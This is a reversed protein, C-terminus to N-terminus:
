GNAGSAALLEDIRQTLRESYAKVNWEIKHDSGILAIGCVLEADTAFEVPGEFASGLRQQATESLEFAAVCRIPKGKASLAAREAPPLSEVQRIFAEVVQDELRAHALDALARRAIEVASRLLEREVAREASRRERTLDDLWKARQTEVEARAEALLRRREEEATRTAEDLKASRERQLTAARERYDGAMSEAAAERSAAADIRAAIQREREAMANLVPRYLVRKLLWVLIFFNVIQAAVTLWDIQV